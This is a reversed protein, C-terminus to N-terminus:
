QETQTDIQTWQRESRANIRERRISEHKLNKTIWNFIGLINANFKHRRLIKLDDVVRNIYRNTEMAKRFTFKDARM